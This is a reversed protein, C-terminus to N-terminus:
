PNCETNNGYWTNDNGPEEVCNDDTTVGNSLSTNGTIFNGDNATHYIAIGHDGNTKITNTGILSDTLANDAGTDIGDSANSTLTNGYILVHDNAPDGIGIGDDHGATFTNGTIHAKYNGGDLFVAGGLAGTVTNGSIEIQDSGTVSVFNADGSSTNGSILVHTLTGAPLNIAGGDGSHNNRFFTNNQIKASDLGQDSYVGSGSASGDVNNRRICNSKLKNKATDTGGNLYVGMTNNQIVNKQLTLGTTASTTHVGSPGNQITLGQITVGDIGDVSVAPNTGGGDVVAYKLVDTAPTTGPTACQAATTATVSTGTFTLQKTVVVPDYKGPCVKITDGSNAAAIAVNIASATKYGSHVGSCQQTGQDVTITSAVSRTPSAFLQSAGVVGFATVLALAFLGKKV